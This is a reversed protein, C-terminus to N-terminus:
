LFLDLCKDPSSVTVLNWLDLCLIDALAPDSLHDLHCALAPVSLNGQHPLILTAVLDRDVLLLDLVLLDRDGELHLAVEQHHDLHDQAQVM